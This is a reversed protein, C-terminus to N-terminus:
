KKYLGFSATIYRLVENCEECRLLNPDDEEPSKGHVQIYFIKKGCVDCPHPESSENNQPIPLTSNM